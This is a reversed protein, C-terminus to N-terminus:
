GGAADAVEVVVERAKGSVADPRPAEGLTLEVGPLAQSRLYQALARKARARAEDLAKGRRGHVRLSLSSPGTQAVQFRHPGVAQEVVTALALPPLRVVAGRASRLRLPPEVRGEVRFAPRPDGCRCGGDCAVIRDGVDFRIVPQVRNALNTVLTTHSLEGPPAPRGKADVGEVVVWEGNVHMWGEACAAAISLCESAGYEDMVPCGFIRRIAQAARPALHEGGSWALAPAIALRGEEQEQALLALVSPYAALFAPGFANLEAVLRPLPLLASFGRAEVNPLARRVREWSAISAFHGGTAVVLAARGRAAAIRAMADDHWPVSALQV